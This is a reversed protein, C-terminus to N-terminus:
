LLNNRAKRGLFGGEVVVVCGCFGFVTVVGGYLNIEMVRKKKLKLFGCRRILRSTDVINYKKLFMFMYIQCIYICVIEPAFSLGINKMKKENIMIQISGYKASAGCGGMFFGVDIEGVFIVVNQVKKLFFSFYSFDDFSFIIDGGGGM